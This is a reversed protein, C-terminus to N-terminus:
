IFDTPIADPHRVRDPDFAADSAALQRTGSAIGRPNSDFGFSEDLQPRMLAGGLPIGLPDFAPRARTQVTVGPDTGYGPLAPLIDPLTQGFAPAAVAALLAFAILRCPRTKADM